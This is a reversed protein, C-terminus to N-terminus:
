KLQLPEEKLLLNGQLDLFEGETPLYVEFRKSEGNWFLVAGTLKEKPVEKVIRAKIAERTESDYLVYPPDYGGDSTIKGTCYINGVVHLKSTPSSTGIGVDHSSNVYLGTGGGPAINVATANGGGTGIFSMFCSGSEPGGTTVWHNGGGDYGSVYTRSYDLSLPKLMSVRSADPPMRMLTQTGGGPNIAFEIAGPNNNYL